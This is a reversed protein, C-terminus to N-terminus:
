NFDLVLERNGKRIKIIGSGHDSFLCPSDYIKQPHFDVQIGKVEPPRDGNLYLSLSVGEGDMDPGTFTFRGNEELRSTTGLVSEMFKELTETPCKRGLIFLVPAQRDDLRIFFENDWHFGCRSV